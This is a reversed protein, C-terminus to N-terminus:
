NVTLSITTTQAASGVTGTVTITYSGTTTGPTGTGGSGGSHQKQRRLKDHRRRPIGAPPDHRAPRALAPAPLSALSSCGLWASAPRQTGPPEPYNKNFSRPAQPRSRRSPSHGQERRPPEPTCPIPQRQGPGSESPSRTSFVDKRPQSQQCPCLVPPKNTSHFARPFLPIWKHSCRTIYM